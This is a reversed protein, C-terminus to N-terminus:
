KEHSAPFQPKKQQPSSLFLLSSVSGFGRFLRLSGGKPGRRSHAKAPYILHLSRKQHNQCQQM